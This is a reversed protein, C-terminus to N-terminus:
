GAEEMPMFLYEEQVEGTENDITTVKELQHWIGPNFIVPGVYYSIIYGEAGEVELFSVVEGGILKRVPEGDILVPVSM